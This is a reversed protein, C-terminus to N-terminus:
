ETESIEPFKRLIQCCLQVFETLNVNNYLHYDGYQKADESFMLAGYTYEAIKKDPFKKKYFNLLNQRDQFPTFNEAASQAALFLLNIVVIFVKIM